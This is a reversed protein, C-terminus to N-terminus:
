INEQLSIQSASLPDYDFFLKDAEKSLKRIRDMPVGFYQSIKRVTYGSERMEHVKKLRLYKTIKM